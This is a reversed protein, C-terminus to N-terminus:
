AGSPVLSAVDLDTIELYSQCLMMEEYQ